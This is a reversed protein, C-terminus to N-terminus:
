HMGVRTGAPPRIAPLTVLALLALAGALAAGVLFADGYGAGFDPTAAAIAAFVAVGLAAGIEHATTMLGSALGAREHDLDTMATISVAPFVFGVGLGLIVFGPLLDPAYSANAPAGSLVLAAVAVLVLGGAAVRRTGAHGIVHGTLHAGIGIAAAIPLFALGTELASADLVHQLFLSNLFFSGVLIGTAGLMVLAGGRLKPMRWTRPPVLPDGVAREVLAFAALLVAAGAFLALTRASGWGHDATGQLAYVLVVLGGVVLTAGPLDLRRGAATPRTGPVVRLALVAVAVGIPVNILFVWEWGLGTTLIGGLLMGAAAGASGIAGWVTLAKTHQPGSYTTVIISLAAPTLMAAGVGQLARAVVLAEPSWALGSALSAGTFLLLGALFIRRRGLVDAARGGLLLLGGAFLVYATVVWQLAGRGFGLDAGISPLAVNAVTIDLIVMFQAVCLLVLVTWPQAGDDHGHSHHDHAHHPPAATATM